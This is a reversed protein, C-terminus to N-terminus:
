DAEKVVVGTKLKKPRGEDGDMEEESERNRKQGAVEAVGADGEVVDANYKSYSQSGAFVPEGLPLRSERGGGEVGSLALSPALLPPRMARLRRLRVLSELGRLGVESGRKRGMGSGAIGVNLASDGKYCGLRKAMADKRSALLGKIRNVEGLRNPWMRADAICRDTAKIIHLCMTYEKREEGWSEWGKEEEETTLYRHGNRWAGIVRAIGIVIQLYMGTGDPMREYDRLWFYNELTLTPADFMIRTAELRRLVETHKRPNTSEITGPKTCTSWDFKLRHLPFGRPSFWFTLYQRKLDTM